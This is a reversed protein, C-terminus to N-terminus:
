SLDSRSKNMQYFFHKFLLKFIDSCFVCVRQLGPNVRGPRLGKHRRSPAATPDHTGQVNDGESADSPVRVDNRRVTPHGAVAEKCGPGPLDCNIM